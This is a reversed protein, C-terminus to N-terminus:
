GWKINIFLLKVLNIFEVNITITKFWDDTFYKKLYIQIFYIITYM